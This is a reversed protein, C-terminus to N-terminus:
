LGALFSVLAKIDEDALGQTIQSMGAHNRLPLQDRFSTLTEMLYYPNQGHLRPIAGQGRAKEGHCHICLREFIAKGDDTKSSPMAGRYPKLPIGSFYLALSVKEEQALKMSISHMIPQGQKQASLVMLRRLLYLPQQGALNPVQLGANSVGGSGDIGHCVECRGVLRRGEAGAQERAQALGGAAKIRQTLLDAPSAAEGGLTAQPMGFCWLIAIVSWLKM